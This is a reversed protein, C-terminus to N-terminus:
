MPDGKWDLNKRSTIEKSVLALMFTRLVANMRAQYGLGMARFWKVMDTDFAATVKTKRRRVPVDAEISHWAEPIFAEKLRFNKWWQHTDLLEIMMDVYAREEAVNRKKDTVEAEKTWSGGSQGFKGLIRNLDYLHRGYGNWLCEM